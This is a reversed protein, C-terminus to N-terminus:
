KKLNLLGVVAPIASRGRGAWSAALQAKDLVSPWNFHSAVRSVLNALDGCVECGFACHEPLRSPPAAASLAGSHAALIQAASQAGQASQASPRATRAIQPSPPSQQNREEM